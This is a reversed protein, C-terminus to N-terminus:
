RARAKKSKKAQDRVEWGTGKLSGENERRKPIRLSKGDRVLSGKSVLDEVMQKRASKAAKLEPLDIVFDAKSCGLPAYIPSIIYASKKDNGEMLPLSGALVEFKEYNSTTKTWTMTIRM